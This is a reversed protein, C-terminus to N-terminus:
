RAAEALWREFAPSRSLLKAEDILAKANGAYPVSKGTLKAQMSHYVAFRINLAVIMLNLHALDRPRAEGFYATLLAQKQPESLAGNM